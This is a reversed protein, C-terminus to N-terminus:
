KVLVMTHLQEVDGARLRLVYVGSGVPVGSQSRGDWVVAHQGAPVAGQVLRNVLRGLVDVPDTTITRLVGSAGSNDNSGSRSARKITGDRNLYLVWYTQGSDYGTVAVDPIGDEDLDGMGSVPGAFGLPEVLADTMGLTNNKQYNKVTGDDRLFLIWVGLDTNLALDSIGDGDVDGIHAVGRATWNVLEFLNDVRGRTDGM